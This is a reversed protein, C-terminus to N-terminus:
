PLTVETTYRRATGPAAGVPAWTITIETRNGNVVVAGAGGPLGGVLPDAVRAQWAALAVPDVVNTARTWMVSGLESALLAARNADEAEISVQTARAQLGIMGLLGISFVLLAVLVEILTFGANRRRALAPRRM